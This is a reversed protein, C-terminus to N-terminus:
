RVGAPARSASRGPEYYGTLVFFMSLLLLSNWEGANRLAQPDSAWGALMVSSVGVSVQLALLTALTPRLWRRSAPRRAKLDLVLTVQCVLTALLFALVGFQSVAAVAVGTAGLLIAFTVLGLAGAMSVQFFWRRRTRLGVRTLLMCVAVAAVCVLPKFVFAEPPGRGAASTPLCGDLYPICVPLHGQGAGIVWGLVSALTLAIGAVWGLLRAEAARDVVAAAVCTLVHRLWASIDAVEEPCVAHAMTYSHWEVAYGASQLLGCAAAGLAEPLVPDMTGHGLFLPTNANAEHREDLLKKGLPMYASLSMIGALGAPYRLGTQTAIAGGQSFGAVVISSAHSGREIERAILACVRQESDRIGAEDVVGNRDFSVIDYWARMAIGGNVTVPRVPAHPFVFRVPPLDGLELMPVLPEFDHGDAGLGHLWVVSRSPNVGTEVEVTQLLESM